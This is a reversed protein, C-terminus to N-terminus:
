RKTTSKPGLVFQVNDLQDVIFNLVDFNSIHYGELLFVKNQALALLKKPKSFVILRRNGLAKSKDIVDFWAGADKSNQFQFCYFRASIKNKSNDIAYRNLKAYSFFVKEQDNFFPKIRQINDVVNPKKIDEPPHVTFGEKLLAKRFKDNIKFAKNSNEQTTTAYQNSSQIHPMNAEVSSISTSTDDANCASISFFIFLFCYLHRRSIMNHIDVKIAHIEM